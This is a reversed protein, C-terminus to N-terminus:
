KKSTSVTTAGGCEDIRLPSGAHRVKWLGGDVLLLLVVGARELLAGSVVLIDYLRVFAVLEVRVVEVLDLPTELLTM